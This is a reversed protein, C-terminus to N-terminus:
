HGVSKEIKIGFAVFFCYIKWNVKSSKCRNTDDTDAYPLHNSFDFSTDLFQLINHKTKLKRGRKVNM